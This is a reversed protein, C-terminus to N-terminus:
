RKRSRKEKERRRKEREDLVYRNYLRRQEFDLSPQSGAPIVLVSNVFLLIVCTMVLFPSNGIMLQVIIALFGTINIKYYITMFKFAFQTIIGKKREYYVYLYKNKELTFMKVQMARCNSAIKFRRDAFYLLVLIIFQIFFIVGIAAGIPGTM